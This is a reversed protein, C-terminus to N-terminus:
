KPLGLWIAFLVFVIGSLIAVINWVSRKKNRKRSFGLAILFVGIIMSFVMVFFGM